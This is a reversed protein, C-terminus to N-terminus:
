SLGALREQQQNFVGAEITEVLYLVQGSCKVSEYFSYVVEVIQSSHWCLVIM